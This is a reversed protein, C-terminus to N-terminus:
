DDKKDEFNEYKCIIKDMFSSQASLMMNLRSEMVESNFFSERHNTKIEHSLLLIDAEIKDIRKEQRDAIDIQFKAFGAILGIIVLYETTGM